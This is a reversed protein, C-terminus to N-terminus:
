QYVANLQKQLSPERSGPGVNDTRMAPLRVLYNYKDKLLSTFGLILLLTFKQENPFVQKM